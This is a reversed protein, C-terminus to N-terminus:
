PSPSGRFAAMAAWLRPSPGPIQLESWSTGDWSWTDGLYPSGLTAGSASGGGFLIVETPTSAMTMDIRSPPPTVDAVTWGGTGPWIATDSPVVDVPYFLFQGGYM